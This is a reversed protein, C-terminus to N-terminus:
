IDYCHYGRVPSITISPMHLATKLYNYITCIQEETVVAVSSTLQDAAADLIRLAAYYGYLVDWDEQTVVHTHQRTELKKFKRSLNIRLAYIPEIHETTFAM